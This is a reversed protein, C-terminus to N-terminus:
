TNVDQKTGYFLQESLAISEPRSNLIRVTGEEETERLLGRERLRQATRQVTGEVGDFFPTGPPFLARITNEVFPFHTCGLVVADTRNTYPALLERLYADLEPCGHSDSCGAEVFRVIEQAPLLTFEARDMLSEVLRHLRDGAITADTALVLVRRHEGSLAAPKVAPEMGVIITDPYLRRLEEVAMSTATNCAVVVAKVDLATLEEMIGCTLGIVDERSRVGYPAHASDGYYILNEGPLLKHMKRLVSIGGLGSDFIAISSHKDPM